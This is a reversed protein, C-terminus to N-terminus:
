VGRLIGLQPQGARRRAGRQEVEVAGDREVLRDEVPQELLHERLDADLQRGVLVVRMERAQGIRLDDHGPELQVAAGGLRRQARLEQAGLDVAVLPDHQGLRGHRRRDGVRDAGDGRPHRDRDARARHALLDDVHEVLVREAVQEAHEHRDVVDRV